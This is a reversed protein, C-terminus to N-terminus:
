AFGIFFNGISHLVGLVNRGGSLDAGKEMEFKKEGLLIGIQGMPSGRSSNTSAIGCGHWSGISFYAVKELAHFFRFFDFNKL